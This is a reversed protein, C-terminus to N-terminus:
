MLCTDIAYKSLMLEMKMKLFTLSIIQLLQM